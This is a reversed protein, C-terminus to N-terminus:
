KTTFLFFAWLILFIVLFLLQKKYDGCSVTTILFVIYGCLLLASLTELITNLM